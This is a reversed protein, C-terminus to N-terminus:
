LKYKIKKSLQLLLKKIINLKNKKRIKNKNKFANMSVILNKLKTIANMSHINIFKEFISYANKDVLELFQLIPNMIQNTLYFLYDIKLNNKKIYDPTEIIDGQLLKNKNNYNNNVKIIAYEIRDGSQLINGPDRKMIKDALYVHSIKTWDKYSEKLKLTKSQLFYKIDYKDNFMDELCKITYNKAGIPDRCNILNDIIGSCIEKVIPANDRRKLVIGMFDQKYKNFDNEYKNGVYKKKTIIVFPWYTKEYECNHPFPLISKILDSSIQGLKITYKLTRDDIISNGGEYIDVIINKNKNYDRRPQLWYYIYKENEIFSMDLRRMYTKIFNIVHEYFNNKDFNFNLNLDKEIYIELIEELTKNNITNIYKNVFSLTYLELKNINFIYNMSTDNKLNEILLESIKDSTLNNNNNIYNIIFNIIYNCTKINYNEIINKLYNHIIKLIEKSEKSYIWKEKITNQLLNKNINYLKDRNIKIENYFDFNEISNTFNNIIDENPYFYNHNFIKELENIFPKILYQKRNNYLNKYLLNYKNLNYEIWQLLKIDFMNTKDKEVLESLTWLWPIYTEEIYEKIFLKIRDELPLLINNNNNLIINDINLNNPIIMDIITSDNYYTDFINIFIQKEIDYLFPEILTKAFLLIKKWIYLSTTKNLLVTNERFRYCSFISDTNHVILNGVGAHFHHNETTLDYVYEENFTYEEIRRLTLITKFIITLIYIDNEFNININYGENKLKYYMELAQIDNNFKFITNIRYLSHDYTM